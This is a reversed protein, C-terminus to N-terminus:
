LLIPRIEPHAAKMTTVFLGGCEAKLGCSDCKEEYRIKYESISRHCITWYGKDVCCLPYNYLGVSIGNEVLHNIAERSKMFSTAPDIYVQEKNRACNGRVELSIFNVRLVNPFKDVIMKAIEMLDDCNLLTVVIRIEISVGADLLNAIGRLTQDFSGKSRSITDHISAESGHIPIAVTLYPPCHTLLEQLLIVSSFSRGNTLLLAEARPFRDALRAMAKLFFQTKITPEGGTVVYHSLNDPLMEILEGTIEDTESYDQRREFDSSPCMLCNSNCNGGMFITADDESSDFLRLCKGAENINIIDGHHYNDFVGKMKSTLSLEKGDSSFFYRGNKRVLNEHGELLSHDSRLIALRWGLDYKELHHAM